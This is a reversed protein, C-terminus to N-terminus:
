RGIGARTELAEVDQAAGRQEADEDLVGLVEERRGIALQDREGARAEGILGRDPEDFDGALVLDVREKRQEKAVPDRELHRAGTRAEGRQMQPPHGDQEQDSEEVLGTEPRAVDQRGVRHQSHQQEREPSERRSRQHAGCRQHQPERGEPEGRQQSRVGPARGLAHQRRAIGRPLREERERHEQESQRRPAPAALRAIRRARDLWPKRRQEGDSDGAADRVDRQHTV